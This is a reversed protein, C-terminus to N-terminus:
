PKYYYTRQHPPLLSIHPVSYKNNNKKTTHTHHLDTPLHIHITTPTRLTQLKLYQTTTPTMHLHFRHLHITHLFKTPTHIRHTYITHAYHSFITPSTHVTRIYPAYYFFQQHHTYPAHIHHTTFFIITSRNATKWPIEIKFHKATLEVVYYDSNIVRRESM